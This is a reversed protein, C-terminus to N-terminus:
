QGKESGRFRRLPIKTLDELDGYANRVERKGKAYYDRPKDRLFARRKPDGREKEEKVIHCLPDWGRPICNEMSEAKRKKKINDGEGRRARVDVAGEKIHRQRIKEKKDGKL